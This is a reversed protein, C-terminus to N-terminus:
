QPKDEDPVSNCNHDCTRCPEDKDSGHRHVCWCCPAALGGSEEAVFKDRRVQYVDIPM